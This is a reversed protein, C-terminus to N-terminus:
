SWDIIIYNELPDIIINCDPFREKVSNAILKCDLQINYDTKILMHKRHINMIAMHMYHFDEGNKELNSMNYTFQKSLNDNNLSKILNACIKDTILSLFNNKIMIEEKYIIYKYFDIKNHLMEKTIPYEM